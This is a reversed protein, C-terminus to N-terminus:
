FQLVSEADPDGDGAVGIPDPYDPPYDSDEFYDYCDANKTQRECITCKHPSYNACNLFEICGYYKKKRQEKKLENMIRVKELEKDFDDADLNIIIM